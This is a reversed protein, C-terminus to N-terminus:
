SAGPTVITSVPGDGAKLRPGPVFSLGSSTQVNILISVDNSGKNAIILDPRGDANVDAVTIGAPNTGTFFGHGGTLAPSFQGNGLGAFVLVNNSGTNAVILDPIGDGNLDALQVAGPNVLGTSTDGLITTGGGPFQVILRNTSQDAFVFATPASADAGYVA